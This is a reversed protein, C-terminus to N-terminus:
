YELLYSYQEFVAFTERMMHQSADPGIWRHGISARDMLAALEADALAQEVATALTAFREPYHRRFEATTALGRISGPLVPVDIGTPAMAEALTPVDWALSRRDSVIALPRIYERISESGEASIM